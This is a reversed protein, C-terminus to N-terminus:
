LPANALRTFSHEIERLEVQLDVWEKISAAVEADNKEKKIVLQRRRESLEAIKKDILEHEKDIIKKEGILELEKNAILERENELFKQKDILELMKDINNKKTSM